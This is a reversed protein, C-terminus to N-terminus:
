HHQLGLTLATCHKSITKRRSILQWWNRLMTVASMIDSKVFRIMLNRLLNYMDQYMFPLLPKNTQFKTLYPELQLAVSQMFGLKASLMKDELAKKVKRFSESAPPKKTMAAVYVKLFPLM